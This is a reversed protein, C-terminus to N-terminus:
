RQPLDRLLWLFLGLFLPPLSCLMILLGAGTSWPGFTFAAGVVVLALGILLLTKMPAIKGRGPVPLTPMSRSAPFRRSATRGLLRQNIRFEEGM